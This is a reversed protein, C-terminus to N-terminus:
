RGHEGVDNAAQEVRQRDQDTHVQDSERQEEDHVRRVVHRAHLEADLAHRRFRDGFPFGFTAVVLRQEDVSRGGADAHQGVGDEETLRRAHKGAVESAGLVAAVDGPLNTRAHPWRQGNRQRGENEAQQHGDREGQQQGEEAGAIEVEPTDDQADRHHRDGAQEVDDTPWYRTLL